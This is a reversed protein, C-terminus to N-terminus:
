MESTESNYKYQLLHIVKIIENYRDDHDSLYLKYYVNSDLDM